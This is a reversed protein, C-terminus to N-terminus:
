PCARSTSARRPPPRARSGRRSPSSSPTTLSSRDRRRRPARRTSASSPVAVPTGSSVSASRSPQQETCLHDHRDAVAVAGGRGGDAGLRRDTPGQDRQGHRRRCGRRLRPDDNAHRAPDRTPDVAVIGPGTPIGTATTGRSRTPRPSSPSRRAREADVPAQPTPSPQPQPQPEAAPAAAPSSRRRASRASARRRRRSPRRSRVRSRQAAEAAAVAEAIQQENLVQEAQCTRSTAVARSAQAQRARQRARRGGVRLQDCSQAGRPRRGCSRPSRRVRAAQAEDLVGSTADAARQLSDVGDIRTRSRRPASSSRWCTRSSRRRVARAGSRRPAARGGVLTRKRRMCSSQRSTARERELRALGSSSAPM